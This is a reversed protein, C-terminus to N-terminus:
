CITTPLRSTFGDRASRRKIPRSPVGLLGTSALRHLLAFGNNEPAMHQVIFVAAPLDTPLQGVL